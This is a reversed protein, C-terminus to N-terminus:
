KKFGKLTRALIVRKKLAPTMKKQNGKHEFMDNNPVRALRNLLTMPIKKDMPIDLDRHLRGEEITIKDKGIKIEKKETKKKPKKDNHSHDKSSYHSPM